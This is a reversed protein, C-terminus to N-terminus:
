DAGRAKVKDTIALVDTVTVDAIQKHGIAPIVDKDLVRKINRLNSNSPEIIEAYWRRAFAEVTDEAMLEAEKIKKREISAWCWNKLFAHALEKAEPKIDDPIADGRKLAM